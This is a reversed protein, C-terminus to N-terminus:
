RAACLQATLGRIRGDIRALEESRLVFDVQVCEIEEDSPVYNTNLRHSFLSEMSQSHSCFQSFALEIRRAPVPPSDGRDRHDTVSM